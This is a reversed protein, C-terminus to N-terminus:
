SARDKVLPGVLECAREVDLHLQEVLQPVGAFPRTDRMREIFDLELQQGVLQGEFGIIHVELKRVQEGFTPNTGVNTAGPWRQGDRRVVVAYVGDGPILTEVRELNATPFGLRQGRGQGTTVTGKLRYPRALLNSAERVNGDLLATRVRSSSVTADKWKTPPVIVFQLHAERCLRALTDVNGARNHGFAFNSGEALARAELREEIVTEFFARASLELMKATIRM